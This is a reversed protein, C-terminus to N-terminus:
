RCQAGPSLLSAYGKMAGAVWHRIYRLPAIRSKERLAHAIMRLPWTLPFLRIFVAGKTETLKPNAWERDSTTAGAHTCITTPIFAGKLGSRKCDHLFLDEEGAMFRGSGVGFMENFRLCRAVVKERRLAIEFSTSYYNRPPHWLDFKFDPYAKMSAESSYKFALIDCLPNDDFAKAVSDLQSSTYDVDDDSILLLPATAKSLLYNRNKSLGRTAHRYVTFDPRNIEDPIPLRPDDVQWGVLYEVGPVPPHHAAAVRAIGDAGLTCIMVQLRIASPSSAPHPM